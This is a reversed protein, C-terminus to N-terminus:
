FLWAKMRLIKQPAPDAHVEVVKPGGTVIGLEACMATVAGILFEQCDTFQRGVELLKMGFEKHTTDATISEGWTKMHGGARPSVERLKKCRSDAPTGSSRKRTSGSGNASTSHTTIRNREPDDEVDSMSVDQDDGDSMSFDDQSVTRWHPHDNDKM